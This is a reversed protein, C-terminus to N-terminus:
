LAAILINLWGQLEWQHPHFQLEKSLRCALFCLLISSSFSLSRTKTCQLRWKFAMICLLSPLHLGIINSSISTAESHGVSISDGDGRRSSEHNSLRGTSHWSVGQDNSYLYLYLYIYMYVFDIM